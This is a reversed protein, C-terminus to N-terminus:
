CQVEGITVQHKLIVKNIFQTAFYHCFHYIQALANIQYGAINNIVAIM